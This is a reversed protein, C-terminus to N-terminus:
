PKDARANQARLIANDIALQNAGARLVDITDKLTEIEHTQHWCRNRLEALEFARYPEDDRHM